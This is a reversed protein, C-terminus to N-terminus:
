IFNIIPYLYPILHSNRKFLKPFLHVTIVIVQKLIGYIDFLIIVTVFFNVSTIRGIVQANKIKNEM